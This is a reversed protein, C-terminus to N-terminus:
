EKKGTYRTAKRTVTGDAHREINSRSEHMEQVAVIAM